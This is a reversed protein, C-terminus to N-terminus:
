PRLFWTEVYVNPLTPRQDELFAHRGTQALWKAWWAADEIVPLDPGVLSRTMKVVILQGAKVEVELGFKLWGDIHVWYTGPPVELLAHTRIDMPPTAALEPLLASEFWSEQGWEIRKFVFAAQDAARIPFLWARGPWRDGSIFYANALVIAARQDSAWTPMEAVPVWRSGPVPAHGRVAGRQGLTTPLQYEYYRKLNLAMGWVSGKKYEDDTYISRLALWLLRGQERDWLAEEVVWRGSKTVGGLGRWRTLVVYRRALPVDLQAVHAAVSRERWIQRSLLPSRGQPSTPAYTEIAKCFFPAHPTTPMPLTIGMLSTFKPKCYEDSAEVVVDIQDVDLVDPLADVHVELDRSARQEPGFPTDRLPQALAPEVWACLPALLLLAVLARTRVAGTAADRM